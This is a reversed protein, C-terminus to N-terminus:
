DGKYFRYIIVLYIIIFIIMYINMKLISKREKFNKYVLSFIIAVFILTEIIPFSKMM